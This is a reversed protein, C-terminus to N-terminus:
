GLLFLCIHLVDENKFELYFVAGPFVFEVVPHKCNPSKEKCRSAADSEEGAVIALSTTLMYNVSAILSPEYLKCAQSLFRFVYVHM